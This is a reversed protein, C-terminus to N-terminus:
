LALLLRTVTRFFTGYTPRIVRSLLLFLLISLKHLFAVGNPTSKHGLTVSSFYILAQMDKSGFRFLCICTWKLMM